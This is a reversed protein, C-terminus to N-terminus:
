FDSYSLNELVKGKAGGAKDDLLDYGLYPLLISVLDLFLVLALFDAGVQYFNTM